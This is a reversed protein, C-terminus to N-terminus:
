KFKCRRTLAGISLEHQSLPLSFNEIKNLALLSLASQGRARALDLTMKPEGTLGRDHLVEARELPFSKQLTVGAFGAGQDRRNLFHTNMIHRDVALNRRAHRRQSLLVDFSM